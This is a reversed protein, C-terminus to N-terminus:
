GDGPNSELMERPDEVRLRVVYQEDFEGSRVGWLVDRTFVLIRTGRPLAVEGLYTGDAEFADFTNPEAYSIPPPPNPNGEPPPTPDIPISAVHRHVWITGDEGPYFGRYAPKTEPVPDYDLTSIQRAQWDLRAQWQSREEPLVAVPTWEKEVRTVTEDPRRIDFSYTESSGVIVDGARSMTWVKSPMFISNSESPEDELEPYPITDLVTGEADVHLLAFPWPEGEVVRGTLTKVYLHDDRRILTAQSTFLGSPIRWTDSATGDPEYLNFRGNRMDRAILRGDSRLFLGLLVDGYEGPGGGEGGITRIYDGEADFYRLERIRSDFVYIGGGTDVAMDQIQAFMTEDPGELQGISLEETVEAPAGWVSGPGITVVEVGDVMERRIDLTVDSGPAPEAGCSTSIAAGIAAGIALPLPSAVRAPMKM